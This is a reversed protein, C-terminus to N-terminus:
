KLHDERTRFVVFRRDDIILRYIAYDDNKEESQRGFIKEDERMVIVFMSCM